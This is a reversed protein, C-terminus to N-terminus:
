PWGGTFNIVQGTTFPSRGSIYFEVLEGFEEPTGLRGCPVSSAIHARGKPDEIYTAKPYYLESYLYNPQIANVQINFPAVERAVALALATAGARVSTALAFGKEPQLQRASTIFAISGQRNAKLKPLVAQCIQLPFEILAEQAARIEELSIEEFPKPENPHVDNLVFGLVEGVQEAELAIERPTQALLATVNESKSYRKRHEPDAFAKDHCLVQYGYRSLVEVVGPGTYSEVNTVLVTRM